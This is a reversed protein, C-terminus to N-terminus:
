PGSPDPETATVEYYVTRRGTLRHGFRVLVGQLFPHKSEILRRAREAAEGEIPRATAPLGTGTVKGRFSCPAIWVRSDRRLRKAKGSTAWTRFYGRDGDVALNVATEVATGDRKFTTLSITQQDVFARIDPRHMTTDM